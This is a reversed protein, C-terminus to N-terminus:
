SRADGQHQGNQDEPRPRDAPEALQKDGALEEPFLTAGPSVLPHFLSERGLELGIAMTAISHRQDVPGIRGGSTETEDHSVERLRFCSALQGGDVEWSSGVRGLARHPYDGGGVERHRVPIKRVQRSEVDSESRRSWVQCILILSCVEQRYFSLRM